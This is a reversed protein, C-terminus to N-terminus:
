GGASWLRWEGPVGRLAHTGRDAFELRSGVVLDHVTSSVLVEAPEAQGMVRAAIHVAMGGVDDGMLEIEGTHVGVRLDLGLGRAESALQTGARVARAPGDFTALVGDGTSKILRGAHSSVVRAAADQHAALVDRWSRDGLEAALETSRCIDSLLVTALVRDAESSGRAGTFFAQVEGIVADTDGAFPFTDSGPLRELRAQPILQALVESHRVDIGTGRHMVLTPVRITPLVPRMDLEENVPALAQVAGPSMSQRQLRGIWERLAVDGSLSPAMGDLLSGDGWHEHLPQMRARREQAAPAFEYGPAATTRAFTSYLLLAGTREPHTAAFLMAMPGGELMAYIGVRDAGAADLVAVLDDMQEELTSPRGLRDSMGSERRDFTIVRAFGAIREFFRRVRPHEWMLEAMSFSQPVYLLDIAGEGFVQYAIHVDGNRAYRTRPPSM